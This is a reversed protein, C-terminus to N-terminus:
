CYTSTTCTSTSTYKGHKDIGSENRKIRQNYKKAIKLKKPSPPIIFNDQGNFSDSSTNEVTDEDDQCEESDESSSEGSCSYDDGGM